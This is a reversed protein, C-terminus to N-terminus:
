SLLIQQLHGATELDSGAATSAGVHEAISMTM